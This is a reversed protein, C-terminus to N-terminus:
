VIRILPVPKVPSTVTEADAPKSIAHNSFPGYLEVCVRVWDPPVTVLTGSWTRKAPFLRPLKVPVIVTAFVPLAEFLTATLPVTVAAGVGFGTGTSELIEGEDPPSPGGTIILRDPLLKTGPAVTVISPANTILV